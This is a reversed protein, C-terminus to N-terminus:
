PEPFEKHECGDLLTNKARSRRIIELKGPGAKEVNPMAAYSVMGIERRNTSSIVHSAILKGSNEPRLYTMSLNPQWTGWQKFFFPVMAAACQDRLSRVWDPHLPRAHPGSEGGVILWRIEDNERGDSPVINDNEDIFFALNALNIPGLLPECSLFMRAAPTKLLIPINKEAEEQNCVTVGLWINDYGCWQEKPIIKQVNEPRKTLLLWDLSPTCAILWFLDEQWELPVTKEFVDCLSGCFVRYRIGRRQAERDWKWPKEWNAKSTRRREHPGFKVLGSRKAWAEAYCHECGPSIKTCGVWPNFTHDCWEIKSNAGM